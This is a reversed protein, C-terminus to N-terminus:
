INDDFNAFNKEWKYNDKKKTESNEASKFFDDDEFPDETKKAFINVSESKKLHDYNRSTTVKLSKKPLEASWQDENEVSLEAKSFDDEFM